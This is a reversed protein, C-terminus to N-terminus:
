QFVAAVDMIFVVISLGLALGSTSFAVVRARKGYVRRSYALCVAGGVIGGVALYVSSMWTTAVPLGEILEGYAGALIQGAWWLLLGALLAAAVSATAWGVVRGAPVPRKSPPLAIAMCVLRPIAGRARTM